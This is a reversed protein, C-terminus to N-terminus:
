VGVGPRRRRQVGLWSSLEGMGLNLITGNARVLSPFLVTDTVTDIPDLYEAIFAAAATAAAGVLTNDSVAAEALGPLFARGRAKPTKTPFVLVGAVQNPVTDGADTGVIGISATGLIRATSWVGESYTIVRVDATSVTVDNTLYGDITDYMADLKTEIADVVDDDDAGGGPASTVEWDWVNLAIV